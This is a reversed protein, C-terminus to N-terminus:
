CNQAVRGNPTPYEPLRFGGHGSGERRKVLRFDTIKRNNSVDVVTLRGERVTNQLDGLGDLHAIHPGLIEVGHVNLSLAADGDLGLVDPHLEFTVDQVENVGGAM